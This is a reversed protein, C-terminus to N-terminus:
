HHPAREAFWSRVNGRVRPVVEPGFGCGALTDEFEIPADVLGMMGLVAVYNDRVLSTQPHDTGWKRACLPLLERFMELAGPRGAEAMRMALVNRARLTEDDTAGRITACDDALQEFHELAEHCDGGEFLLTALWTRANLTHRGTIGEVTTLQDVVIRLRDIASSM